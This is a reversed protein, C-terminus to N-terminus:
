VSGGSLQVTQMIKKTRKTGHLVSWILPGPPLSPVKQMNLMSSFEERQEDADDSVLSPSESVPLFACPFQKDLSNEARAHTRTRAHAHTRPHTVELTLLSALFNSLIVRVLTGSILVNAQM